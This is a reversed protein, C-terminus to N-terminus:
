DPERKMALPRVRAILAELFKESKMFVAFHGAGPIALFEKDPAGISDVYSKALKAPTSCDREGQFVFVPVKFEGAAHFLDPRAKTMLAGFVSGWSHGVVIIRDKGLHRRLFEALEIGDHTMREITMSPGISEGSKQLTRGAGRQDWQVVTFHTTWSFFYSQSWPNTVDGPGGHIFLLVPNARDQGRITIWQDIGGIRTYFSEDIRNGGTLAYTQANRKSLFAGWEEFKRYDEAEQTQPSGETRVPSLLGVAALLCSLCGIELLKPM